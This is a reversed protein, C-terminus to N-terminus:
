WAPRIDKAAPGKPTEALNFEVTRGLLEPGFVLGSDFALEKAHGFVEDSGDTPKIFFFGRDAKVSSIKGKMTQRTEFSNRTGQSGRRRFSHGVCLFEM